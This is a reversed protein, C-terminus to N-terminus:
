IEIEIFQWYDQNAVSNHTVWFEASDRSEFSRPTVFERWVAIWRKEKRQNIRFKYYDQMFTSTLSWETEDIVVTIWEEDQACYGEIEGGNLWHLCVEKHQPLCLFYESQENFQTSHQANGTQIVWECGKNDDLKIFRILEMNAAKACIIEANKHKTM